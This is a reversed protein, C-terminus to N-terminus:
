WKPVAEVLRKTYPHRPTKLVEMTPGCEVVGGDFLIAVRSCIAAVTPLDHSIYLMAMCEEKAVRALLELVERQTIVDLASTPEDAIVLAPRHLLAMVILVRQAQGLSIQGPFRRLFAGQKPLGASQLLHAIRNRQLAWAEPSHARWAERLQTELRLAPNLASAPSQPILSVQRGRIGRLERRSSRMLDRGLLVVRGSVRAGTHDLLRLVAMAFTSKGSGSEGVLGLCEGPHIEVQLNQLVRGKGPYEVSIDTSLVPAPPNIEDGRAAPRSRCTSPM